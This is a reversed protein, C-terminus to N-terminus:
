AMTAATKGGNKTSGHASPTVIVISRMRANGARSVLSKKRNSDTM